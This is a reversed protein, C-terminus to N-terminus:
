SVKARLQAHRSATEQKLFEALYRYAEGFEPSPGGSSLRKEFAEAAAFASVLLAYNQIDQASALRALEVRQAALEERQQILQQRQLRLERVQILITIILGAFALGSFLTSLINFGAGIDSVEHWSIRDFPWSHTALLLTFIGFLAVAVLVPWTDRIGLGSRIGIKV